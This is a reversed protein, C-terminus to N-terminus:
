IGFISKIWELLREFWSAQEINHVEDEIDFSQILQNDQYVNVKALHMIKELPATLSTENLQVNLRTQTTTLPEVATLLGNNDTKMVRSNVVDFTNLDIPNVDNYLSTTVLQPKRAEVKFMKLTSKIVPPEAILQKDKIAVEDGHIPM